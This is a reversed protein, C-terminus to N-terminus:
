TTFQPEFGNPDETDSGFRWTRFVLPSGTQDGSPRVALALVHNEGFPGAALQWDPHEAQPARRWYIRRGEFALSLGALGDWVTEGNAKVISEKLSWLMLAHGAAKPGLSELHRIEDASFFRQSIRHAAAARDVSELDVGIAAARAVALVIESASHSLNFSIAPGSPDALEPKGNANYRFELAAPDKDLYRALVRRLLVRGLVFRDAVLPHQMSGLRQKEDSSLIGTGDARMTKIGSQQGPLMWLHIQGPPLLGSARM